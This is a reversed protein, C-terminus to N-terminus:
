PMRRVEKEKLIRKGYKEKGKALRQVISKRLMGRDMVKMDELDKFKKDAQMQRQRKKRKSVAKIERIRESLSKKISKAM